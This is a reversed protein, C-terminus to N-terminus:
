AAVLPEAISVAKAHRDLAEKSQNLAALLNGLTLYTVALWLRHGKDQPDAASLQQIYELSLTLSQLARTSDGTKGRLRGDRLNGAWVGRRYRANSPDSELMARAIDRDKESYELAATYEGNEELVNSLHSYTVSLDRLAEKNGPETAVVAKQI